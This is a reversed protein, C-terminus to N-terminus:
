LPLPLRDLVRPLVDSIQDRELGADRMAGVLARLVQLQTSLDTLCRECTVFTAYPAGRFDLRMSRGPRGCRKCKVVM